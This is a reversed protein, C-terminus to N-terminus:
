GSEVMERSLAALSARSSNRRPTASAGSFRRPPTDSDPSMGTMEAGDVINFSSDDDGDGLELDYPLEARTVIASVLLARSRAHETELDLTATATTDDPSVPTALRSSRKKPFAFEEAIADGPFVASRPSIAAVLTEQQSWYSDKARHSMSGLEFHATPGRAPQPELLSASDGPPARRALLRTACIGAAAQVLSIGGDDASAPAVARLLILTVLSAPMLALCPLCTSGLTGTEFLGLGDANSPFKLAALFLM